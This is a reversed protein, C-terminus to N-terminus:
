RYEYNEKVNEWLTPEFVAGIFWVENAKTDRIVFMFPKNFNLYKIEKPETILAANDKMIIVTAAAAKVGKESVKINAKHLVDDVKLPKDSMNTFDANPSFADVIGLKELDEKLSTKYEFDFLPLSISLEENDVSHIKSLLDDVNNSLSDNEIFEKFNKEPMIVDFELSTDEYEKLPLSLVSYSTDQYYKINKDETVKHMIAVDIKENDIKTFPRSRTDSNEFKSKWEMDIALANILLMEVEKNQVLDDSLMNKIINFTKEEIWNNVNRADKFEDYIVEANYKEKLNNIFDDKVYEKYSNRIFTSNALSLVNDINSYKTLTLEKILKDIEEKTKENAGEGLMSLAYKISLPSYVLNKNDNELKLFSYTFGDYVIDNPNHPNDPKINGGGNSNKSGNNIIFMSVGIIIMIISITVMILSITKKKDIDM